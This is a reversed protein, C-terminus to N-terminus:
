DAIYHKESLPRRTAAVVASAAIADRKMTTTVDFIRYFASEFVGVSFNHMWKRM